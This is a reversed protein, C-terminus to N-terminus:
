KPVGVSYYVPYPLRVMNNEECARESFRTEPIVLFGRCDSDRLFDLMRRILQITVESGRHDYDVFIPGCHPMAQLVFFGIVSDNQLAVLVSAYQPSLPIWGREVIVQHVREMRPDDSKLWEYTVTNTSETSEVPDIAHDRM